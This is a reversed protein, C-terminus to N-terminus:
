DQSERSSLQKMIETKSSEDSYFFPTIKFISNVLMDIIDQLLNFSIIFSHQGFM